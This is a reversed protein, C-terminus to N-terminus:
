RDAATQRRAVIFRLGSLLVVAAIVGIMDARWDLVDASRGFMPQTIEDAAAWVALVLVVMLALGRLRPWTISAATYITSAYFFYGVIHLTHDGVAELESPAKPMHTLCLAIVVYLAVTAWAIWVLRRSPRSM